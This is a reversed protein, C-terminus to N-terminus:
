ISSVYIEFYWFKQKSEFNPSWFKDRESRRNYTWVYKIVNALKIHNFLFTLNYKKRFYVGKKWIIPNDFLNKLYLPVESEFVVTHNDYKCNTRTYVKVAFLNEATFLNFHKLISYKFGSTFYWFVWSCKVCALIQIFSGITAMWFTHLAVNGDLSCFNCSSRHLFM